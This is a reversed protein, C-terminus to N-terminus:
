HYDVKGLPTKRPQSLRQIRLFLTLRALLTFHNITNASCYSAVLLQFISVLRGAHTTAFVVVHRCDKQPPSWHLELCQVLQFKVWDKRKDDINSLGLESAM